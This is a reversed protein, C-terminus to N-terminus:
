VKEIHHTYYTGIFIGCKNLPDYRINFPQETPPWTFWSFSLSVMACIVSPIILLSSICSKISDLGIKM